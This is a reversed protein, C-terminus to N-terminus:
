DVSGHLSRSVDVEIGMLYNDCKLGREWTPLSKTITSHVIFGSIEIWAGMYPAVIGCGSGPFGLLKLGREWTPLSEKLLNKLSNLRMEIWAGM